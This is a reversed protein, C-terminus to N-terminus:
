FHPQVLGICFSSPSPCALTPHPVPEWLKDHKQFPSSPLSCNQNGGSCARVTQCSCHKVITLRSHAASCQQCTAHVLARLQVNEKTHARVNGRVQMGDTHMGRVRLRPTCTHTTRAPDERLLCARLALAGEYHACVFLEPGAVLGHKGVVAVEVFDDALACGAVQVVTAPGCVRTCRYAHLHVRMCACVYTYMCALNHLTEKPPDRRSHTHLFAYQTMLENASIKSM